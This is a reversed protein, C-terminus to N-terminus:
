ISLLSVATAKNTLKILHANFTLKADLTIELFKIEGVMLIEM